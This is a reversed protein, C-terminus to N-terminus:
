FYIKSIFARNTLVRLIEKPLSPQLKELSTFAEALLSDIFQSVHVPAGSSQILMRMEEVEEPSANGNVNLLHSLRKKDPSAAVQLAYCVLPTKRRAILDTGPTRGVSREAGWFNNLDNMLQFALGMKKGYMALAGVEDVHGGGLFAGIRLALEGMAATKENLMQLSDELGM